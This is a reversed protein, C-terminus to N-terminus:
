HLRHKKKNTDVSDQWYVSGDDENEAFGLQTETSDWVTVDHPVCGVAVAEYYAITVAIADKDTVGKV